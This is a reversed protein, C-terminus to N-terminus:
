DLSDALAEADPSYYIMLMKLDRHGVMKALPLVDIKKALRTIATHRLDHFHLDDILAMGKAKRFLSDIQSTSVNFVTDGEPMQRIIRIAEASLPVDRRAASTKGRRVRLFRREFERVRGSYECAVLVRM